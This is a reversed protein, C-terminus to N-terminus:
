TAPLTITFRSGTAVADGGHARAVARVIALGLGSGGGTRGEDARTFREFATPAFDAPLGPGDDEVSLEVGHPRTVARLTVAGTGHRLANDVLNGLSQEIRLPDLEASASPSEVAISRGGTEARPAFRDRVRTMLEDLRVPERKIPLGGQDARAIVLLDEALRSLREVEEGASTLASRLEDPSRGPKLALELEARLIALPTRLEHSADAVFVRERELSGEIRDLMQNLTEALARVEDDASPLPLREGSRELTVEAARRRMAEVPRLARGSLWYGLLSALLIAIPAGLGFAARLASLTEERDQVSVGAVVVVVQDSATVPRALIRATGDVGPISQKEFYRGRVAAESTEAPSLVPGASDPLTSAVVDGDGATSTAPGGGTALVQSFADEADGVRQLGLDPAAGPSNSVASALDDARSILGEDLTEDLSDRVQVYVLVGALVLVLLMAAAFAATLKARISLRSM